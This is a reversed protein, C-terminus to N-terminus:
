TLDIEARVLREELDHRLRFGLKECIRQMVRNEPLVEATIRQLKEAQGVQLLRRLLESGL